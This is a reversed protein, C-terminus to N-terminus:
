KSRLPNSIIVDVDVPVVRKHYFGFKRFKGFVFVRGTVRWEERSDSFERWAAQIVRETPVFIEAPTPLAVLENKRVDFAETYDEITVPLGDIRFDSFTLFEIKASQDPSLITASIQLTIGTLGVDRLEPQEFTVQPGDLKQSGNVRIVDRHVPYGLISKPLQQASVSGVLALATVVAAFAVANLSRKFLAWM